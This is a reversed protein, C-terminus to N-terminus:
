PNEEKYDERPPSFIDLARAGEDLAVARHPVGSPIWYPNGPAITRTEEGITLEFRGALGVGMQEHPHTHLPIEANPELDLFSMLMRKGWVARLTVGPALRRVPRAALNFFPM